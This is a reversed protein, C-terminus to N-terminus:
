PHRGQQKEANRRVLCAKKDQIKWVSAEEILCFELHLSSVTQKHRRSRENFEILLNYSGGPQLAQLSLTKVNAGPYDGFLTLTSQQWGPSLDVAWVTEYCRSAIRRCLFIRTIEPNNTDALLPELDAVVQGSEVRIPIDPPMKSIAVAPAQMLLGVLLLILGQIKM